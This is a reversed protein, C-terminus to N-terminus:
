NDDHCKLQLALDPKKDLHNKLAEDALIIVEAIKQAFQRCGPGYALEQYEAGTIKHEGVTLVVENPNALVPVKSAGSTVAVNPAQGSLIAAFAVAIMCLKMFAM